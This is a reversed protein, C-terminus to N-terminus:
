ARYGPKAVNQILYGTPSDFGFGAPIRLGLAPGNSPAHQARENLAFHAPLREFGRRRNKPGGGVLALTPARTEAVLGHQSGPM